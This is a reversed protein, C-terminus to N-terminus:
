QRDRRAADSNPLRRKKRQELDDSGTIGRRSRVGHGYKLHHEDQDGEAAQIPINRMLMDIRICASVFLIAAVRSRLGACSRAAERCLPWSAPKSRNVQRLPVRPTDVSANGFSRSPIM